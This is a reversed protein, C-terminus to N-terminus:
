SPSVDFLERAKMKIPNLPMRKRATVKVESLIAHLPIFPFVSMLTSGNMVKEGDDCTTPTGILTRPYTSKSLNAKDPKGLSFV